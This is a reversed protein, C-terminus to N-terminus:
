QTVPATAPPTTTQSAPPTAPAPTAPALTDPAPVITNNQTIPPTVEPTSAYNTYLIYGGVLLVLAAIVIAIIRNTGSNSQNIRVEPRVGGKTRDFESEALTKPKQDVYNVM